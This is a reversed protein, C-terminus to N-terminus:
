YWAHGYLDNIKKLDDIDIFCIYATKGEKMLGDFLLRGKQELGFRNFLGTLPDTIYLM